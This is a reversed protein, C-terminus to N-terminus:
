YAALLGAHTMGVNAYTTCPRKERGDRLNETKKPKRPERPERPKNVKPTLEIQAAMLEHPHSNAGYRQEFTAWTNGKDVKQQIKLAYLM